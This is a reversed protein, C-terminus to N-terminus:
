RAHIKCGTGDFGLCGHVVTFKIIHILGGGLHINIGLLLCKNEPSVHQRTINDAMKNFGPFILPFVCVTNREDDLYSQM